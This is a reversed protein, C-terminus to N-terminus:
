FQNYKTPNSSTFNLGHVVSESTTTYMFISIYATVSLNLVFNKYRQDELTVM